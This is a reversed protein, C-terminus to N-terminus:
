AEATFSAHLATTVPGRRQEELSITVQVQGAARSQCNRQRRRTGAGCDSPMRAGIALTAPVTAPAAATACSAMVGLPVETTSQAATASVVTADRLTRSGNGPKFELSDPDRLM